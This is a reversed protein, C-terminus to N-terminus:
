SLPLLDRNEEAVRLSRKVLNLAQIGFLRRFPKPKDEPYHNVRDMTVLAGDAPKLAIPDHRHKARRKSLLIVRKAGATSRNLHEL